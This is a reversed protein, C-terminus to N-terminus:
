NIGGEDLPIIITSRHLLAEVHPYLNDTVDQTKGRIKEIWDITGSGQCKICMKTKYFPQVEDNEFKEYVTTYELFEGKGKCEECIM